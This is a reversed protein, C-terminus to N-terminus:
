GTLEELASRYIELDRDSFLVFRVETFSGRTAGLQGRITALAVLAASATPYGYAGTSISPFAVTRLGEDAAVRLTNRYADALLEDEREGGGRWVPGVTHIVFRAPLEGAETLVAGGTPLGGPYRARRIERCAELIRPGGRAHIAGDVGAGGLLSSNAANVVADVRQETIDGRVLTLRDAGTREKSM